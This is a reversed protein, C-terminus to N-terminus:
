RMKKKIKVSPVCTDNTKRQWLNRLNIRVGFYLLCGVQSANTHFQNKYKNPPYNQMTTYLKIPLFIVEKSRQGRVELDIHVCVDVPNLHWCLLVILFVPILWNQFSISQYLVQKQLVHINPICSNGDNHGNWHSISVTEAANLISILSVAFGLICVLCTM